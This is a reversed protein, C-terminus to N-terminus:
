LLSLRMDKRKLEELKDKYKKEIEVLDEYTYRKYTYKKRSLEEAYELGFKKILFLMYNGYDGGLGGAGQQNCRDHQGWVIEEDFLIPDSRGSFAHGGQIRAYPYETYDGRVMCTVCKGREFTGTTALCDRHRIYDSFAKWAKDKQKNYQIKKEAVTLTGGEKLKKNIQTLTPKKKKVTGMRKLTARHKEVAQKNQPCKFKTHFVSGCLKCSQQKM